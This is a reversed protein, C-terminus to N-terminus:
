AYLKQETPHKKTLHNEIKQRVSQNILPLLLKSLQERHAKTKHGYLNQRVRDSYKFNFKNCVRECYVPASDSGQEEIKLEKLLNCFLGIVPASIRPNKKKKKKGKNLFEIWKRLFGHYKSHTYNIKYDYFCTQYLKAREIEIESFDQESNNPYKKLYAVAKADFLLELKDNYQEMYRDLEATVLKPHLRNFKM